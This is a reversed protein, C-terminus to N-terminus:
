RGPLVQLLPAARHAIIAQGQPGQVWGIFARYETQPEKLGIIYLPTRLPYTNDAVTELTPAIGGILLTRVEDSAYSLSIYGISGPQSAVSEVMAANSPVVRAAQTTQRTGMVLDEFEARTGSGQERSFVVIEEDSGNLFRWNAIHGQYVARLENTSLGSVRNSLNTIILISDQGLPAGWLSSEQPLHNSLFYTMEDALLKEVLTQYNGTEIEFHVGPNFRSYAGTLEAALLATSTTSYVRLNVSATTPTSAPVAPTSCSMLTSLAIIAFTRRTRKM